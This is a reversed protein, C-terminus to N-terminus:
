KNRLQPISKKKMPKVGANKVVGELRSAVRKPTIQKGEHKTSRPVKNIKNVKKM